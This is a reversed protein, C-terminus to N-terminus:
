ELAHKALQVDTVNLNAATVYRPRRRAGNSEEPGVIRDVVTPVSEGPDVTAVDPGRARGPWEGQRSSGRTTPPAAEWELPPSLDEGDCTYRRPIASGSSFASSSLQM